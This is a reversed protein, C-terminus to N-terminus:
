RPDRSLNIMKKGFTGACEKIAAAVRSTCVTSTQMSAVTTGGAVKTVYPVATARPTMIVIKPALHHAAIITSLIM